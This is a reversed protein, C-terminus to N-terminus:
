ISLCYCLLFFSCKWDCDIKTQLPSRTNCFIIIVELSIRHRLIYKFSQKLRPLFLPGMKVNNNGLNESPDLKDYGSLKIVLLNILDM